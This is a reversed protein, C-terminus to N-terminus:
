ITLLYTFGEKKSPIIKRKNQTYVAARSVKAGGQEVRQAIRKLCVDTECQLYIGLSTYCYKKCLDMLPNRRELTLNTADVVFFQSRDMYYKCMEQVKKPTKLEDGSVVAAGNFNNKHYTSKGAGPLGMMIVMTTSPLLDGSM